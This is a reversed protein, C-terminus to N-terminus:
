ALPYEYFHAFVRPCVKQMSGPDDERWDFELQPYQTEEAAYHQMALDFQMAAEAFDEGIQEKYACWAISSMEELEAESSSSLRCLEFVLLDPNQLAAEFVARGRSIVWGRFYEFADDSCGGLAVYATAWWDSRYSERFAINLWYDFGLIEETSLSRLKRKLLNMQALPDRTSDRSIAILSWFTERLM